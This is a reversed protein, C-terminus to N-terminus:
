AEKDSCGPCGRAPVHHDPCMEHFVGAADPEIRRLPQDLTERALIDTAGSKLAAAAAEQVNRYGDCPAHGDMTLRYTTKRVTVSCPEIRATLM